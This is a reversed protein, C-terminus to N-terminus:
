WWDGQYKMKNLNMGNFFFFESETAGQLKWYDELHLTHNHETIM